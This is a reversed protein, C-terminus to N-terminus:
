AKRGPSTKPCLRRRPTAAGEGRGRVADLAGGSVAEACHAGWGRHPRRASGLGPERGGQEVVSPAQSRSCCSWVSRGGSGLAGKPAMCVCAPCRLGRLGRELEGVTCRPPRPCLSPAALVGGAGCELAQTPWGQQGGEAMTEGARRTVSSSGPPFPFHSARGPQIRFLRSCFCIQRQASLEPCRRGRESLSFYSVSAVLKKTSFTPSVVQQLAKSVFM